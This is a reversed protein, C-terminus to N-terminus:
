RLRAFEEKFKKSIEENSKNQQKMKEVFNKLYETDQKIKNNITQSDWGLAKYKKYLVYKEVKTLYHHLQRSVKKVKQGKIKPLNEKRKKAWEKELDSRKRIGLIDRKLFERHKKRKESACKSCVLGANLKKLEKKKFKNKCIDCEKKECM